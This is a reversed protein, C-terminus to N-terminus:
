AAMFSTVVSAIKSADVVHGEGELVELRANPLGHALRRGVELFYPPNADGVMVLTPTTARELGHPVTGGHANDLAASDYPLSRGLRELAPWSPKTRTDEITEPPVGTLAMFLAVADGSRGEAVLTTLRDHYAVRAQADGGPVYPPDHLVLREIPLGHLVAQLALAAGSSHGYLSVSGGAADTLAELDELEREVEFAGGAGSDGRGRRDYNIIPVHHALADSIRRMRARDCLAGGVVIVPACDEAGLREYAIVTGDASAIKNVDVGRSRRGHLGVDGLSRMARRPADVCRVVDAEERRNCDFAISVRLGGERQLRHTSRAIIQRRRRETRPAAGPRALGGPWRHHTHSQAIGPVYVADAGLTLRESSVV